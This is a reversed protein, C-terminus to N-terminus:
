EDKVEKIAEVPCEYIANFTEEMEPVYNGYESYRERIQAKGDNMEFVQPCRIECLECGICLM